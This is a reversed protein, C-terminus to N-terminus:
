LYFLYISYYQDAYIRDYRRYGLKNMKEVIMADDVNNPLTEKFVAVGENENSKRIYADINEWKSENVVMFEDFYLLKPIASTIPAYDNEAIFVCPYQSNDEVIMNYVSHDYIYDPKNMRLCGLSIMAVAFLCVSYLYERKVKIIDSSNGVLFGLLLIMVPILHYVYRGTVYPAIICVVIYSIYAPIIVVLKKLSVKEIGYNKCKLFYVGMFVVIFMIAVIMDPVVDQGMTLFRLWYQEVNNLNRITKDMSVTEQLSLQTVFHPFFAVMSAIGMLACASFGLMEKYEKKILLYLVYSLCVLFTYIVFYYQTLMGCFITIAIAFYCKKSELMQKLIFYVLLLTFFTLMMYMRIFVLTSLAISSLGYVLVIFNANKYGGFYKSIVSYLLLLTAVFVLANLGLGIWKSFIGPFISSIAHILFYYLPPHVDQTQNYYVSGFCFRDNEDVTLAKLLEQRSVVANVINGGKIDVIWPAYESNSLVHTYIEDLHYGNKDNCFKLGVLLIFTFIFVCIIKEKFCKM